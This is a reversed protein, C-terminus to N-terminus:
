IDPKTTWFMSQMSVYVTGTLSMGQPVDFMSRVLVNVVALCRIQRFMSWAPNTLYKICSRTHLIVNLLNLIKM